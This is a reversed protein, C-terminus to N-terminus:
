HSPIKRSLVGIKTQGFHVGPQHLRSLSRRIRWLGRFMRWSDRLLHVKSGAIESWNVPVEAVAYGLLHAVALFEVDLLWHKDKCLALVEQGIQRRWM